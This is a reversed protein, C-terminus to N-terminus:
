SLIARRDWNAARRVSEGGGTTGCLAQHMRTWLAQTGAADQGLLLPRLGEYAVAAMVPLSAGRGEGIGRLGDETTIRVVLDTSHTIPGGSLGRPVPLPLTIWAVEVDAIRLKM